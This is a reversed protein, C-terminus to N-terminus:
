SVLARGCGAEKERRLGHVVLGAQVGLVIQACGCFLCVRDSTILDLISEGDFFSIKHPKGWLILM